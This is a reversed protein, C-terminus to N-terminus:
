YEVLRSIEYLVALECIMDTVLEKEEEDLREDMKKLYDVVLNAQQELEEQTVVNDEMVKQYSERKMALEDILIYGTEDDFLKRM